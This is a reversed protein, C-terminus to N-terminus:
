AALVKMMDFAATKAFGLKIVKQFAALM